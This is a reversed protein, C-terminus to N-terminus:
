LIKDIRYGHKSQATTKNTKTLNKFTRHTNGTNTQGALKYSAFIKKGETAQGKMQNVKGHFKRRM